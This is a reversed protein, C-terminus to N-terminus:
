YGYALYVLNPVFFGGKRSTTLECFSCGRKPLPLEEAKEQKMM